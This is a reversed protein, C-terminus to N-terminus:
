DNWKPHDHHPGSEGPDIWACGVVSVVLAAIAILLATVM